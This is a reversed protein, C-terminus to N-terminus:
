VRTKNANSSDRVFGQRVLYVAHVEGSAILRALPGSLDCKKVGRLQPVEGGLREFRGARLTECISGRGSSRLQKPDWDLTGYESRMCHSVILETAFTQSTGVGCFVGM